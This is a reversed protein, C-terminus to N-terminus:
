RDDKLYHVTGILYLICMIWAFWYLTDSMELGFKRVTFGNSEHEIINLYLGGLFALLVYKFFIYIKLRNLTEFLIFYISVSFVVFVSLTM